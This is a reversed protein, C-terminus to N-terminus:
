KRSSYQHCHLVYYYIINGIARVKTADEGTFKRPIASKRIKLDDYKTIPLQHGNLADAAADYFTHMEERLPLGTEPLNISIVCNRLSLMLKTRKEGEVDLNYVGKDELNFGNNEMFMRRTDPFQTPKETAQQFASKVQKDNSAPTPKRFLDPNDKMFEKHVNKIISKIEGSDCKTHIFNDVASDAINDVTEYLEDSNELSHHVFKSIETKLDEPQQHIYTNVYTEVQNFLNTKFEDSKTIEKIKDEVVHTATSKHVEFIDCADKLTEVLSEAHKTNADLEKSWKKMAEKALPKMIKTCRTKFQATSENLVVKLQAAMEKPNIAFKMTNATLIATAVQQKIEQDIITKDRDTRQSPPLKKSQGLVQQLNNTAQNARTITCKLKTQEAKLEKIRDKIMMCQDIDGIKYTELDIKHDKVLQDIINQQTESYTEVDARISVRREEYM